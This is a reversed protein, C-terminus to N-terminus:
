KALDQQRTLELFYNNLGKFWADYRLKAFFGVQGKTSSANKGTVTINQDALYSAKTVADQMSLMNEYIKDQTGTVKGEYSRVLTVRTKNNSYQLNTVELIDQAQAFSIATLTLGITIIKKM